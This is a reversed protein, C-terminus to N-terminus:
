DVLLYAGSDLKVLTSISNPTITLDSVNTHSLKTKSIIKNSVIDLHILYPSEFIVLTKYDSSLDYISTAQLSKIPIKVQEKLEPNIVVLIGDNSIMVKGTNNFKPIGAPVQMIMKGDIMSYIASSDTKRRIVPVLFYNRCPSFLIEKATGESEYLTEEQSSNSLNHMLVKYVWWKIDDSCITQNFTVVARDNAALSIEKYHPLQYDVNRKWNRLDWFTIKGGYITALQEGGNTLYIKEFENKDSFSEIVKKSILDIVHIGNSSLLYLKTGDPSFAYDRIQGEGLYYDNEEKEKEQGNRTLVTKNDFIVEGKDKDYYFKPFQASLKQDFLLKGESFNWAWIKTSTPGDYYASAIFDAGRTIMVIDHDPDIAILEVSDLIEDSRDILAIERGKYLDIIYFVEDRRSYTLLYRGDPSAIIQGRTYEDNETQLEKAKTVEITELEEKNILDFFHISGDQKTYCLVDKIPLFMVFLNFGWSSDDSLECIVTSKEVSYIFARRRMEVLLFNSTPDFKISELDDAILETNSINPLDALKWLYIIGDIDYSVLTKGNPSFEIGKVKSKHASLRGSYKGNVLDYLYITSENTLVLFDYNPSLIGLQTPFILRWLVERTEQDIVGTVEKRIVLIKNEPLAYYNIIIGWGLLLQSEDNEFGPYYQTGEMKMMYNTPKNLPEFTKAQKKILDTLKPTKTPKKEDRWNENFLIGSNGYFVCLNSFYAEAYPSNHGSGIYFGIDRGSFQDFWISALEYENVGITIQSGQQKVHIKNLQFRTKIMEAFTWPIIGSWQENIYAFFGYYGDNTIAFLCFDLYDVNFVLGLNGSYIDPSTFQASVEIELKHTYSATPFRPGLDFRKWAARWFSNGIVKAFFKGDSMSFKFGDGQGTFWDKEGKDFQSQYVLDMNTSKWKSILPEQRKHNPSVDVRSSLLKCSVINFMRFHRNENRLHCFALFKDFGVWQLPEITRTTIRGHYDRYTIAVKGKSAMAKNIIERHNAM